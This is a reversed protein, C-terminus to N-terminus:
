KRWWCLHPWNTNIIKRTNNNDWTVASDTTSIDATGMANGAVQQVPEQDDSGKGVALLLHHLDDLDPGARLSEGYLLLSDANESLNSGICGETVGNLYMNTPINKVIQQHERDYSSVGAEILALILPLVCMTLVSMLSMVSIKMSALLLAAINRSFLALYM